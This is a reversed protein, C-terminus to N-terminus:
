RPDLAEAVRSRRECPTERADARREATRAFSTARAIDEWASLDRLLKESHEKISSVADAGLQLRLPTDPSALAQTIAHAARKPDGEQTGHMKRAFDRTGGVATSYEPMVTMTRMGGGAFDTRFAGPEVILV